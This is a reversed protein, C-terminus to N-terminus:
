LLNEAVALCYKSTVLSINKSRNIPREKRRCAVEFFWNSLFITGGAMKKYFGERRSDRQWLHEALNLYYHCLIETNVCDVVLKLYVKQRGSRLTPFM